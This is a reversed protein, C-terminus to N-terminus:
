VFVNKKRKFKLSIKKPVRASLHQWKEGPHLMANILFKSEGSIM